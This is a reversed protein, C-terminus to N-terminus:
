RGCPAGVEGASAEIAGIAAKGAEGFAGARVVRTIGVIQSEGAVPVEVAADRAEGEVDSGDQVLLAESHVVTLGADHSLAHALMEGAHHGIAAQINRAGIVVAELGDEGVARAVAGGALIAVSEGVESRM